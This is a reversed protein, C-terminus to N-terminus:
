WCGLMSEALDVPDLAVTSNECEMHEVSSFKADFFNKTLATARNILKEAEAREGQAVRGRVDEPTDPIQGFLTHIAELYATLDLTEQRSAGFLRVKVPNLWPKRTLPDTTEELGDFLQLLRRQRAFLM